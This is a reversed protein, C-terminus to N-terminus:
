HKYKMRVITMAINLALSFCNTIIIPLDDRKIGYVIWMAVGLQLVVLMGISVDEAKKEKLTKILQPLLSSATLIGATLGIVQTWNMGCNHLYAALTGAPGARKLNSTQLKLNKIRVMGERLSIEPTGGPLSFCHSKCRVEFKM